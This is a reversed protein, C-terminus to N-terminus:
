SPAGYLYKDHHESADSVGVTVPHKGLDLIPDREAAPVVLIFGTQRRFEVEEFGELLDKPIILGETTVKLKM